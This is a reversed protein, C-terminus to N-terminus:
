NLLLMLNDEDFTETSKLEKSFYEYDLQAMEFVQELTNADLEGCSYKVVANISQDLYDHANEILTDIYPLSGGSHVIINRTRYIRRVQWRIKIQHQEIVDLVKKPSKLIESLEFCRYRLLHFNDLKSYLDTRLDKYKSLSILELVLQKIKKDKYNEINKLIDTLRSRGWKLLDNVLAQVLRDIYNNLLIPELGNCIKKVKGGGHVSSPIITEIAIWINILQNEVLDSDLATAHLDVVRNFRKFSERQLGINQFLYNLKKAASEPRIDICKDMPSKPQIIVRHLNECCQTIFVDSRWTIKQKHSYLSFLDSLTELTREAIRRASHRDFTEIEDIQVWVENKRKVIKKEKALPALDDPLKTLVSIDFIQFATSIKLIDKSVLFYIEFHHTTNSISYFFDEVEIINKIERDSFFFEKTKEYIHQKSIGINILLSALLNCLHNILKKSGKPKSIETFILSCCLQFYSLPNLVKELVELRLKLDSLRIDEGKLIFKDIESTLMLKAVDDNRLSFDLEELVYDLNSRDLVENEIDNILSLAERCIFSPNLAPPKYSDLSYDFFLEDFKQGVFLLLSLSEESHWENKSVFLM